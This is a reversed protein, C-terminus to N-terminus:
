KGGDKNVAIKAARIQMAKRILVPTHVLFHDWSHFGRNQLTIRVRIIVNKTFFTDKLNSRKWKGKEERSLFDGKVRQQPDGGAEM